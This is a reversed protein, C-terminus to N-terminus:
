YFVYYCCYYFMNVSYSQTCLNNIQVKFIAQQASHRQLITQQALAAALMAQQARQQEELPANTSTAHQLAASALVYQQQAM